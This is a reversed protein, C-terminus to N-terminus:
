EWSPTLKPLHAMWSRLRSRRLRRWLSRRVPHCITILRRTTHRLLGATRPDMRRTIEEAKQFYELGKKYGSETYKSSYYKGKLDLEYAEPNTTYTKTVKSEDAGSLRIKLRNSVDRAIETQLTVLDTQRRNYQQSWM